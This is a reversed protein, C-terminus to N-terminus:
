TVKGEPGVALGPPGSEVRFTVGGRRSRVAVQHALARGRPTPDPPGSVVLLYDPDSVALAADTDFPHLVVQRAGDPIVAITRELPLFQVRQDFTLGGDLLQEDRPAIGLDGLTALTRGDTLRHATVRCPAPPQPPDFPAPDFPRGGAFRLYFDGHRAPVLPLGGGTAEQGTHKLVPRLLGAATFLYAGDGGPVVYGATDHRYNVWVYNGKLRLDSVGQPSSRTRWASFTSGDASARVHWREGNLSSRVGDFSIIGTSGPHAKVQAAHGLTRVDLFEVHARAGEGTSDAWHVLAPGAADCGMVLNLVVGPLPLPEDAERARTELDFREIRRAGGRVVLLKHRGAASAIRDDDAAFAHVLKAARVDFLALQRRQPLHLVLYRGNGGVAVDAAPAPLEIVVRNPDPAPAAAAGDPAPPPLAAPTDPGGRFFLVLYAGVGACGVFTLAVVAAGAMLWRFAPFTPAASAPPRAPPHVRGPEAVGAAVVPPPAVPLRPAVPTPEPSAAPDPPAPTTAIHQCRGCRVRKGAMHDPVQLRAQCAPCPFRLPM